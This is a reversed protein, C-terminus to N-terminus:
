TALLSVVRETDTLDDVVADAGLGHLDGARFRGTAVLLCRAGAARACDLDRPTDGIVWTRDPTFTRGRRQGVRELAIPVLARRDAHDSGFAGVELDIWRDLGFAALKLAANAELNGTLVTQVVGPDAALRKLLAEVGPLVRGESRIRAEAAAAEAQLRALVPPLHHDLDASAVGALVLVEAAIQPDTKGSMVVKPLVDPPIAEGLVHGVAAEFVDRGASGAHILTGDVDWLM